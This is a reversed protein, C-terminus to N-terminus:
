RAPDPTPRDAAAEDWATRVARSIAAAPFGRLTLRRGVKDRFASFEAAGRNSLSLAAERALTLAAAYDNLIGDLRLQQLADDAAHRPIHHHALHRALEAASCLGGDLRRRGLELALDYEATQRLSDLIPADITQGRALSARRVFAATCPLEHADDFEVVRTRGQRRIRTVTPM